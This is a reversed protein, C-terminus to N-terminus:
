DYHIHKALDYPLWAKATDGLAALQAGSLSNRWAPERPLTTLGALLVGVVVIAAGRVLGFAAGLLRDLWGLGAGKILSSMVVSVLTMALLTMVFVVVFALLVRLTEDPITKSFIPAVNLALFRAAFFATVWAVLALLERVLGRLVSVILSIGIIALVAYDIWTM